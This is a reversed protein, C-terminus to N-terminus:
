KQLVDGEMLDTLISFEEEVQQGVNSDDFTIEKDWQWTTLYTEVFENTTFMGEEIGITRFYYNHIFSYIDAHVGVNEEYMDCPVEDDCDHGEESSGSSMIEYGKNVMVSLRSSPGIHDVYMRLMKNDVHSLVIECLEEDEIHSAIFENGVRVRCVLTTTYKSTDYKLVKLVRVKLQELNLSTPVQLPRIRGGIYTPAFNDDLSLAGDYMLVFSARVGSM